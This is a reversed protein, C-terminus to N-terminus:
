CVYCSHCSFDLIKFNRYFDFFTCGALLCCDVWNAIKRKLNKILYSYHSNYQTPIPPNESVYVRLCSNLRKLYKQFIDSPKDFIFDKSIPHNKGIEENCVIVNLFIDLNWFTWTPICSNILFFNPCHTNESVSNSFCLPYTSVHCDRSTHAGACMCKDKMCTSKKPLPCLTSVM